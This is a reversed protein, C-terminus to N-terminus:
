GCAPSTHVGARLHPGDRRLLGSREPRDPDRTGRRCGDGGEAVTFRLAEAAEYERGGDDREASLRNPVLVTIPREAEHERQWRAPRARKEDLLANQRRHDQWESETRPQEM